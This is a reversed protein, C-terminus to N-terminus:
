RKWQDRPIPATGTPRLHEDEIRAAIEDPVFDGLNTLYPMVSRRNQKYYYNRRM